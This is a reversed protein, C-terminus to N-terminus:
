YMAWSHDFRKLDVRMAAIYADKKAREELLLLKWITRRVDLSSAHVQRLEAIPGTNYRNVYELNSEIKTVSYFAGSILIAISLLCAIAVAVRSATWFSFPSFRSRVM